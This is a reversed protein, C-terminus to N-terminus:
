IIYDVQPIKKIDLINKSIYEVKIHKKNNNIKKNNRSLIFIKINKDKILKKSDGYDVISEGIFGSGGLILLKKM